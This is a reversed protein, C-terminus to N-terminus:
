QSRRESIQLYVASANGEVFLRNLAPLSQRSKNLITQIKLVVQVAMATSLEHLLLLHSIEDPGVSVVEMIRYLHYVAVGSIADLGSVEPIYNNKLWDLMQGLSNEDSCCLVKQIYVYNKGEPEQLDLQPFADITQQLGRRAHM